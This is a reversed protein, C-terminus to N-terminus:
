GLPDTTAKRCADAFDVALERRRTRVPFAVVFEHRIDLDLPVLSLDSNASGVALWQPVIAVGFAEAAFACATEVSQTEVAVRAVVAAGRFRADIEDRWPKGRGILILPERALEAIGGSTALALPHTRRMVAVLPSRSIPITEVGENTVPAKAIAIDVERAAVLGIIHEYTGLQVSVRLNPRDAMLAKLARPLYTSSASHPAAVRLTGRDLGRIDRALSLVREMGDLAQTAEEYLTLATETARMRGHERVFLTLRFHDELKAIQQSVAPQSMGLRGSAATVGGAEIVACFVELGRIM